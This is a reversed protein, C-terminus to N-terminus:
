ISIHCIQTWPDKKPISFIKKSGKIDCELYEEIQSSNM